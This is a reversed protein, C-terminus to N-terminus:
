KSALYFFRTANITIQKQEATDPQSATPENYICSLAHQIHFLSNPAYRLLYVPHFQFYTCCSITITTHPTRPPWLAIKSLCCSSNHHGCQRYGCVASNRGRLRQLCVKPFWAQLVSFRSIWLFLASSSMPLLGVPLVLELIQVPVAKPEPVSIRVTPSSVSQIVAKRLM